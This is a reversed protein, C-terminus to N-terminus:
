DLYASRVDIWVAEPAVYLEAYRETLAREAEPRSLGAFRVRGLEPVRMMGTRDIEDTISASRGEGTPYHVTVRDGVHIVIEEPEVPDPAAGLPLSGAAPMRGTEGLLREMAQAMQRSEARLAFTQATLAIVALGLIAVVITNFRQMLIHEKRKVYHSARVVREVDGFQARAKEQALAADVGAAVADEAAFELHAAIERRVDDEVTRRGPDAEFRM